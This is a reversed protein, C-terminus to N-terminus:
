GASDPLDAASASSEALLKDRHTKCLGLGIMGLGVVALPNHYIGAQPPGVLAFVIAATIVTLLTYHMLNPLIRQM